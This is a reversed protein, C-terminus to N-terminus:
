KMEHQEAVSAYSPVTMLVTIIKNQHDSTYCSKHCVKEISLADNV